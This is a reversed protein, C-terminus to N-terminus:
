LVNPTPPALIEAQINNLQAIIGLQNECQVRTSKAMTDSLERHAIYFSDPCKYGSDVCIWYQKNTIKSVAVINLPHFKSPTGAQYFEDFGVERLKKIIQQYAM